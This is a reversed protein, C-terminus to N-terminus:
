EGGTKPSEADQRFVFLHNLGLQFRRAKVLKLGHGSFIRPTVEPEFGYHQDLSMGDIVRLTALVELIPDVLPSPTTVVLHGGPRLHKSCGRAMRQQGEAPIHELVALMTIVDFPAEGELDEPFSGPVLRYGPREVPSGLDPDLGVGEGIRQGLQRFLAGDACGLDLVRAGGAIFPRAKRIRWSQLWRDVAKM